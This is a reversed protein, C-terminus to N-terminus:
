ESKLKIVKRQSEPLKEMVFANGNNGVSLYFKEVNEFAEWRETEGDGNEIMVTVTDPDITTNGPEAEFEIRFKFM